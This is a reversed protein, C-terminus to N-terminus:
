IQDSQEDIPREEINFIKPLRLLHDLGIETTIKLREKMENIAQAYADITGHAPTISGQFLNPNSLYITCYTHGRRLKKKFIKIFKTELYTLVPPVRITTEFFRTNLTKLNIVVSSKEGSPATLIFTKSAFGTMSQVM